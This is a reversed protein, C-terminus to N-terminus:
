HSQASAILMASANQIGSVAFDIGALYHAICKIAEEFPCVCLESIQVYLAVMVLRDHVCVWM